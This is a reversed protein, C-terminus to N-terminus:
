VEKVYIKITSIGLGGWRGTANKIRVGIRYPDNFTRITCPFTCKWSGGSDVCNNYISWAAYSVINGGYAGSAAGFMFDISVSMDLAGSGSPGAVFTTEIITDTDVTSAPFTAVWLDTVANLVAPYYITSFNDDLVNTPPYNAAVTPDAGNSQYADTLIVRKYGPYPNIDDWQMTAEKIAQKVAMETAVVTDLAPYQLVAGGITVGSSVYKNDDGIIIEDDNISPLREELAAVREEVPNLAGSIAAAIAQAIVDGTALYGAKLEQNSIFVESRLFNGEGDSLVVEGQQLSMNKRALGSGDVMLGNETATLLNNLVDAINVDGNIVGTAQNVRVTLTDTTGGTYIQVLSAAPIVIEQSHEGDGVVLVIAPGHGGPPDPLPYDPEYRGSRVFMDKPIDIVIDESGYVPITIVLNEYTPSHAVGTIPVSVPEGNKVIDINGEVPDFSVDTVGATSHQIERLVYDKIAGISALYDRKQPDDFADITKGIPPVITRLGHADCCKFEGTVTNLYFKGLIPLNPLDWSEVFMLCETIEREGLFLKGRDELFYLADPNVSALADYQSGLCRYFLVKAM